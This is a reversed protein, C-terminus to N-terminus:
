EPDHFLDVLAGCVYSNEQYAGDETERFVFWPREQLGGLISRMSESFVGQNPDGKRLYELAWVGLVVDM